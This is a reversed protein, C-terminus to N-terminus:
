KGPDKATYGADSTRVAFPAEERARQELRLRQAAVASADNSPVSDVEFGIGAQETDPQLVVSEGAVLPASPYPDKALEVRGGISVRVFGPSSTVPGLVTGTSAVAPLSGVFGFIVAVAVLFAIIGWGWPPIGLFRGTRPLDTDSM